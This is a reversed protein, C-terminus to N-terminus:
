KKIKTYLNWFDFFICGVILLIALVLFPLKLQPAGIAAFMTALIISICIITLFIFTAIDALFRHSVYNMNTDSYKFAFYAFM